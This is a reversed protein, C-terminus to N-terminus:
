GNTEERTLEDVMDEEWKGFLFEIKANDVADYNPKIYSVFDAVPFVDWPTYKSRTIRM